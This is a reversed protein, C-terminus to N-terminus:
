LDMCPLNHDDVNFHMRKGVSHPTLIYQPAVAIILKLYDFDCLYKDTFTSRTSNRRDNYNSLPYVAQVTCVSARYHLNRFSRSLFGM